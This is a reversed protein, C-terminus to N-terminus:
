PSRAASLLGRVTERGLSSFALGTAQAGSLRGDDHPHERTQVVTIVVYADSLVANTVYTTVFARRGAIMIRRDARELLTPRPRPPRLTRRAVLPRPEAM